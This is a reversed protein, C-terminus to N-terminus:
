DLSINMRKITDGYRQSDSRLQRLFGDTNLAFPEYYMAAYKDKFEQEALM